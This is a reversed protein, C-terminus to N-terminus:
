RATAVLDAKTIKGSANKPLADVFSLTGPVKYAALRGQLFAGLGNADVDHGERRVVFARLAHGLIPDEIGVVAVESVAPHEAVAEEVEKASVRHGGVKLMETKRGVM